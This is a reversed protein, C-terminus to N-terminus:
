LRGNHNLGTKGDVDVERSSGLETRLNKVKEQLKEANMVGIIQEKIEAKLQRVKESSSDIAVEAKLEEIKNGISTGIVARKIEENIEKNLKGVKEINRAAIGDKKKTTGMRKLTSSKLFEMLEEKTKQVEEAM